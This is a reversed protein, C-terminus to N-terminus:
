TSYRGKQIAIKKLRNDAIAMQSAAGRFTRMAAPRTSTIRTDHGVYLPVGPVIAGPVQHPRPPRLCRNVSCTYFM